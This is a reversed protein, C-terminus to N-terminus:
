SSGMDQALAIDQPTDLDFFTRLMPDHEKLEEENVYRVSIRDLFERMSHSAGDSMLEHLTELGRGSYFAAMPQPHNSVIPVVADCGERLSSLYEILAPVIFPMDCGIAFVWSTRSQELGATLGALPGKHGPHDLVQPLACTPRPEKTSVLISAFMPQLVSSIKELLTMGSFLLCAKDQGMRQSEGGALILATCDEIM